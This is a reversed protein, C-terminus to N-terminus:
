KKTGPEDLTFRGIKANKFEFLILQVVKAYDIEGGVRICGRKKGIDEMLNIAGKGQDELYRDDAEMKYFKLLQEPYKQLLEELLFIVASEKDFVDEKIAGTVALHLGIRPNDFKPWLVGPTDLLELGEAIRVWQKQRTVGPRNSTIAKRRGALSNLLTSKGVNPVGAVMLRVQYNRVGKKRWKETVPTAAERILPLLRKIGGKTRSDLKCALIGEERFYEIWEATKADDAMDSKNLVVVCPKHGAIKHLLPNSSSFPIRADLIEVVVDILKLQDEIMHGAKAMHGPFWQIRFDKLEM